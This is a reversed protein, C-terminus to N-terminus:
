SFARSLAVFPNAGQRFEYVMLGLFVESDTQSAFRIGQVQLEKKLENANEVIGNHVIAVSHNEDIAMTMNDVASHAMHPHANVDSVEGHTAWRTHGICAHSHPVKDQLFQRLVELKGAKKYLILEDHENKFCVGASDYGRYELRKLGELVVDVGNLPGLYGVIGCM